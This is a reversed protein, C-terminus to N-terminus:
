DLFMNPVKGKGPMGPTFTASALLSQDNQPPLPYFRSKTEGEKAVKAVKAGKAGKAGDKM